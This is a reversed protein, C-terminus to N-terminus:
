NRLYLRVSLCHLSNSYLQGWMKAFWSVLPLTIQHFAADFLTAGNPSHTPFKKAIPLFEGM